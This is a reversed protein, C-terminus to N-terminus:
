KDLLEKVTIKNGNVTIKDDLDYLKGNVKIKDVVEVETNLCFCGGRVGNQTCSRVTAEFMKLFPIVGTHIVEGGRIRSGISRIRGLNLGIGARNSTYKGVATNSNYISDLDDAVDILTCSSFQRKQTRVGSMIPTPLSIRFTSILDYYRKIYEMRNDDYNHFMVMSILMYMYQPTEFITGNNRDKILYKDVVQQLGAYTFTFDRDHVIYRNLMDIEKESYWKIIDKDYVGRRVNSGIIYKMHIPQFQGLVEKRLNYMLLRAAVYQYDTADQSILDAASRITIKHIEETKINNRFQLQANMEIDSVSVNKLGDTAWDLVKHIKEINLPAKSGDRKVVNIETSM